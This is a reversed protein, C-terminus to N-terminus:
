QFVHNILSGTDRSTGLLDDFLKNLDEMNQKYWVWVLDQKMRTCTEGMGLMSQINGQIQYM